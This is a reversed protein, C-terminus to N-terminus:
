FTVNLSLTYTRSVPYRGGADGGTDIGGGEPSAGSYGTFYHLNNASFGIRAGQMKIRHAFEVPLAYNLSIARLCLYDAKEISVTSTRYNGTQSQYMYRPYTADVDGVKKWVHAALDATPLADGQLQGNAIYAPYNLLSAGTTFDTRIGLTFQKYTFYNNFGGTWTPFQNGAIVQDKNELIGNGDLDAWIADGALKKKSNDNPAKAADADTQYIGLYKFGTMVGITGGEQLGGLWVYQGTATDYAEVGGQRNKDIGNFPLKLITRKTYGANASLMWKFASKRPLMDVNVEMEVGRTQLSGFNTTITSVGTSQPLAVSTLLDDTRRNYFDLIMSVKHDFLGIDAGLDLTKSQEWKLNSNPIISPRVPAGGGYLDTTVFSGEPQFDSLGSINGNVGYSGRLKFQTKELFSNSWFKERDMNWGVSVGPFFGFKQSGLNSAGDYRGNVTLLYKADYDYNVRFFGGDLQLTNNQGNVVTPTASGNLTPILDTAANQGTANFTRSNRFYHSYGLKGEINHKTFFTHTYTLTADGQEQRTVNDTQTATRSTVLTALGSLYAAPQFTYAYSGERLMSVYPEFVLDKTINWKFGVNMAVDELGNDGQPAYPGKYFYDPNGISNNQGGPAITGDEFTYKATGPLSASRYFVNALSPVQNQTRNSYLLQGYANVNDAVKYSGNFNFSLRKWNTVEATGQSNTYGLGTYFTAKDTGGNASIYHDGTFANRYILNQFNTERYIITKTPDIPDPMNSWGENLKYANASTLYQTTFGTNKLLNNGTGAATAATLNGIQTPSYASAWVYGQRQLAIYDAAGAYQVLKMPKGVSGNFNYNIATKNPKGHKTAILIVGNSGRAGYIATAAADKLVQISEVDNANIDALANPRVIGDMIYLPSAGLPNNISTGGRLIIRPAAGPQGSLNQVQLGAINGELANGINTYPVDTLVRADLKAVSTSLKERSQSGYGVVIVENLKSTNDTLTITFYSKNTIDVEQSNYGVMSVVVVRNGEPVSLSFKGNVDTTTGITKGKVSVSVGPLTNGSEDKVVGTIVKPPIVSVTASRAAFTEASLFCLLLLLM